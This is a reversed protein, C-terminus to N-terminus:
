RLGHKRLLTLLYPRDMRALRAAESVNGKAAAMLHGLYAHEFAGLSQARADKYPPVGAPPPPPAPRSPASRPTAKAATSVASGSTDLALRGMALTTEMTNRLERVNGSWYHQSLVAMTEEDIFSAAGAGAIEQVFHDVLLPIDEPRERLPPVLLRTGALRYYLDARFAGRNVEARLDRNTASVIRVDVEVEGDGGVRRFRGRQLVGLLAPQAVLLLEGVEDLFVTGGHAREFAGAVRREAGTFSGREHGFLHSEILTPPLSGCDVLVFPGGRRPGLEHIASALLEKGTGTEGQILVPASFRALRQITRALDAMAPSGYVLGPIAPMAGHDEAAVAESGVLEVVLISSGVRIRTSSPILGGHIAVGGIYTGNRSGLDRLEIGEPTPRLEVHVRSVMPDTLALDNEALAGVTASAGNPLDVVRGADPGVLVAVRLRGGAVRPKPASLTGEESATHIM